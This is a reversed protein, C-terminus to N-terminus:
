RTDLRHGELSTEGSVTPWVTLRPTTTEMPVLVLTCPPLVTTTVVSHRWHSLLSSLLSSTTFLWPIRLHHTGFVSSSRLRLLVPPLLRFLSTCFRIFTLPPKRRSYNNLWQCHLCDTSTTSVPVSLFRGWDTGNMPRTKDFFLDRWGLRHPPGVSIDCVM